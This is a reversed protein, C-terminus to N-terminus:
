IVLSRPKMYKKVFTNISVDAEHNTVTLINGKPRVYLHTPKFSNFLAEAYMSTRMVDKFPYKVLEPTVCDVKKFKYNYGIVKSQLRYKKFQQEFVIHDHNTVLYIHYHVNHDKTIEVTIMAESYFPGLERWLHLMDRRMLRHQEDLPYCNYRPNLTLTLSYANTDSVISLHKAHAKKSDLTWDYAEM